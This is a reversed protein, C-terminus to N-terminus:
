CTVSSFTIMKKYTAVIKIPGVTKAQVTNYVVAVATVM